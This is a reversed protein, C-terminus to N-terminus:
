LRTHTNRIWLAAHIQPGVPLFDLVEQHWAHLKKQVYLAKALIPVVALWPWSEGVSVREREARKGAIM